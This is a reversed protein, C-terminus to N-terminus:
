GAEAMCAQAAADILGPPTRRPPYNEGIQTLTLPGNSRIAKFARAGLLAVEDATEDGSLQALDLKCYNMIGRIEQFPTNVFIGVLQVGELSDGMELRLGEILKSCAVPAVYRWSRSYFNFGLM